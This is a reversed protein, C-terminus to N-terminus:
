EMRMEMIPYSGRLKTESFHLICGYEYPVVKYYGKSYKLEDDSGRWNCENQLFKKATAKFEEEDYHGEIYCGLTEDENRLFQMKRYM